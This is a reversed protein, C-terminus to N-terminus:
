PKFQTLSFIILEVEPWLICGKSHLSERVEFMQFSYFSFSFSAFLNLSLRCISGLSFVSLLPLSWCGSCSVYLHQNNGNYTRIWHYTQFRSCMSKCIGALFREKSCYFVCFPSFGCIYVWCIKNTVVPWNIYPGNHEIHVCVRCVVISLSPQQYDEGGCKCAKFTM